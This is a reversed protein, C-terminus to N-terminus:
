SITFNEMFITIEYEFSLSVLDLNGTAAHSIEYNILIEIRAPSSLQELPSAIYLARFIPKFRQTLSWQWM